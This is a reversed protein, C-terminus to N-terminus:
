DYHYPRIKTGSKYHPPKCRKTRAIGPKPGNRHGATRPGTRVSRTGAVLGVPVDGIGPGESEPLARAALRPDQVRRRRERGHRYPDGATGAPPPM